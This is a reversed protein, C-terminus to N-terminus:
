KIYIDYSMINILLLNLLNMEEQGTMTEKAILSVVQECVSEESRDMGYFEAVVGYDAPVFTYTYLPVLLYNLFRGLVSSVGYIATQSALRKLPNM